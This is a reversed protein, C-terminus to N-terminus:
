KKQSNEEELAMLLKGMQANVAADGERAQYGKIFSSLTHTTDKTSIPESSTIIIRLPPQLVPDM